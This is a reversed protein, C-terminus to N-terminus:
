GLHFNISDFLHNIIDWTNYPISNDDISIFGIKGSYTSERLNEPIENPLISKHEEQFEEILGEPLDDVEFRDEYVDLVNRSEEYISLFRSDPFKKSHIENIKDKNEWIKDEWSNKLSDELFAVNILYKKFDRYLYGWSVLKDLLGEGEKLIVPTDYGSTIKSLIIKVEELPRETNLIFVESSSNTIVDIRNKIKM